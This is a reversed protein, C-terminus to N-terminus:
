DGFESANWRLRPWATLVAFSVFFAEIANIWGLVPGKDDAVGRGYMFDNVVQLDFPDACWVEGPLIGKVDVHGYLLVTRKTQDNGHSACLMYPLHFKEESHLPLEDGEYVNEPDLCRYRIDFGMSSLHFTIFSDSHSRRSLQYKFNTNLPELEFPLTPTRTGRILRETM